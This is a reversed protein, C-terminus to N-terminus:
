CCVSWRWKSSYEGIKKAMDKVSLAGAVTSSWDFQDRYFYWALKVALTCAFSASDRNRLNNSALAWEKSKPPVEPTVSSSALTLVLMFLVDLKPDGLHSVLIDRALAYHGLIRKDKDKRRHVKTMMDFGEDITPPLSEFPIPCGFDIRRRKVMKRNELAERAARKTSGATGFSILRHVPCGVLNVVRRATLRGRHEGPFCEIRLDRLTCDIVREWDAAKLLSNSTSRFAYHLAAFWTSHTPALANRSEDHLCVRYIKACYDQRTM